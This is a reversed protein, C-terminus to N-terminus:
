ANELERTQSFQCTSRLIRNRIIIIDATLSTYAEEHARRGKAERYGGRRPKLSGQFTEPSPNALHGPTAGERRSRWGMGRHRLQCEILTSNMSARVKMRRQNIRNKRRVRTAHPNSRDCLASNAGRSFNICNNHEEKYPFNMTLHLSERLLHGLLSHTLIMFREATLHSLSM